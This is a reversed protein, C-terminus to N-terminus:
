KTAEVKKILAINKNEIESLFATVDSFLGSYQAQKAFYSKMDKSTFRYGYRAFIENRMIKLDSASYKRLESETLLRDSADFNGIFATRLHVHVDSNNFVFGEIVACTNSEEYAIGEYWEFTTKENIKNVKAKYSDYVDAGPYSPAGEPDGFYQKTFTVKIEDGSLTWSGEKVSVVPLGVFSAIVRGDSFFYTEDGGSACNAESIGYGAPSDQASLNLTILLSFAFSILKKM